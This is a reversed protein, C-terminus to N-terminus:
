DPLPTGLSLLAALKSPVGELGALNSRGM